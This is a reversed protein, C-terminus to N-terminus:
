SSCDDHEGVAVVIWCCACAIPHIMRFISSSYSLMGGVMLRKAANLLSLKVQQHGSDTVLVDDDNDDDEVVVVWLISVRPEIRSSGHVVDSLHCDEEDQSKEVM